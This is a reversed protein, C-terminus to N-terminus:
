ISKPAARAPRAKFESHYSRRPLPGHMSNQTTGSTSRSLPVLLPVLRFVMGRAPVPTSFWPPTRWCRGGAADALLSRGLRLPGLGPLAGAGPGSRRGPPPHGLAAAGVLHRREGEGTRGRGPQGRGLAGDPPLLFQGRDRLAAATGRRRRRRRGGRPRRRRVM